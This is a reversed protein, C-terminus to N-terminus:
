KSQSQSERLKKLQEETRKLKLAQFANGLSLLVIVIFIVYGEM